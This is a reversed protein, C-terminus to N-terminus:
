PCLRDKIFGKAWPVVTLLLLVMDSVDAPERVVFVAGGAAVIQEATTKQRPTLHKGPTKTEIAIFRGESCGYFDLGPAGMGNQVPMFRYVPLADLARKVLAKVRGEPTM